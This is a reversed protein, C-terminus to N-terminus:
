RWRKKILLKVQNVLLLLSM